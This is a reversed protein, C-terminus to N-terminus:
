STATSGWRSTTSRPKEGYHVSMDRIDFVVQRTAAHDLGSVRPPPVVTPQDPTTRLRVRPPTLRALTPDLYEATV